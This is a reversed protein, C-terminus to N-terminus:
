YPDQHTMINKQVTSALSSWCPRQVHQSLPVFLSDPPTERLQSPANAPIAVHISLSFYLISTFKLIHIGFHGITENERSDCPIGYCTWYKNRYYIHDISM